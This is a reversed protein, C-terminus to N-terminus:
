AAKETNREILKRRNKSQESRTAWRVNGPEYNGDNNIRDLSHAKSPRPGVENFFSKFSPFLFKIGRCGYWKRYAIDTPCNCRKRADRYAAWEPTQRMGHHRDNEDFMAAVIEMALAEAQKRTLKKTAQKMYHTVEAKINTGFVFPGSLRPPSTRDPWFKSLFPCTM